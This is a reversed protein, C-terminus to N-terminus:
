AGAGIATGVAAGGNATGSQGNASTGGSSPGGNPTAPTANAPESPTTNAPKVPPGSPGMQNDGTVLQQNIKAMTNPGAIGDVPLGNARQFDKIAAVTAPGDVGDAPSEYYNLQGLNRQLALVDQGTPYSTRTHALGAPTTGSGATTAGSNGTAAPGGDTTTPQVAAATGGASTQSGRRHLADVAVWAVAASLLAITAGLAFARAGPRHSRHGRARADDTAHHHHRPPRATSTITTM